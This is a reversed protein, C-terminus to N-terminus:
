AANAQKQPRLLLLFKVVRCASAEVESLLRYVQYGSLWSLL